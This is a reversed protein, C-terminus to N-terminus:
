SDAGHPFQRGSYGVFEILGKCGNCRVITSRLRDDFLKGGIGIIKPFNEAFHLILRNPRTLDHSSPPIEYRLGLRYENPGIEVHEDM